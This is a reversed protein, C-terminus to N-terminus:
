KRRNRRRAFAMGSVGMGVFMAWAGPEPTSADSARIANNPGSIFGQNGAITGNSVNMSSAAFPTYDGAGNVTNASHITLLGLSQEVLTANSLTLGNYTLSVNPLNPDDGGLKAASAPDIGLFPTSVAYSAGGVGTFTPAHAVDTQLGNFDYFTVLDGTSVRTDAELFLQYTYTVNGSAGIASLFRPSIAQAHAAGAGLVSLGALAATLPLLRSIKM